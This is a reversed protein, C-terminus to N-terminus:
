LQFGTAVASLTVHAPGDRCGCSLTTVGAADTVAGAWPTLRRSANQTQSRTAASENPPGAPCIATMCRMM